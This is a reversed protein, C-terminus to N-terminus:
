GGLEAQKEAVTLDDRSWEHGLEAALEDLGAHQGPLREPLAETAAAKPEVVGGGTGEVWPPDLGLVQKNPADLIEGAM